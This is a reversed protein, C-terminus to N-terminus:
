PAASAEAIGDAKGKAYAARAGNLMQELMLRALPNDTELQALQSASIWEGISPISELAVFEIGTLRTIEAKMEAISATTTM